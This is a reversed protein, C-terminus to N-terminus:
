KLKALLEDTAQVDGLTVLFKGPTHNHLADTQDANGDSVMCDIRLVHQYGRRHRAAHRHRAQAAPSGPGISISPIGLLPGAHRGDRTQKAKNVFWSDINLRHM